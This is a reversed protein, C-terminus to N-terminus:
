KIPNKLMINAFDFIRKKMVEHRSLFFLGLNPDLEALNVYKIGVPEQIKEFNFIQQM